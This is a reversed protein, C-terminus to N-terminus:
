HAYRDAPREVQGGNVGIPRRPEITITISGIGLEPGKVLLQERELLAKPGFPPLREQDHELLVRHLPFSPTMLLTKVANLGCPVCTVPKPTGVSSSSAVVEM